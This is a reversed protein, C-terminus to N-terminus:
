VRRPNGAKGLARRPPPQRPEKGGVGDPDRGIADSSDVGDRADARDSTRATARDAALADPDSGRDVVSGPPVLDPREDRRLDDEIQPRAAGRDPDLEPEHDPEGSPGRTPQSVGTEAEPQEPSIRDINPNNISHGPETSSM